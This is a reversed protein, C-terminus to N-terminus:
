FYKGKKLIQRIAGIFYGAKGSLIMILYKRVWVIAESSGEKCFCYCLEWIREIVHFLDLIFIFGIPILYEQAKKELAREGDMLVVRECNNGPDRAKVEEVIRSFALDKGKLTARINKNEPKPGDEREIKLTPKMEPNHKSNDIEYKVIDDVTRENKEIGFVATVTAM